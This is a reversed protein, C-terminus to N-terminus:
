GFTNRRGDKVMKERRKDEPGRNVKGVIGVQVLVEKLWAVNGTALVRSLGNGSEVIGWNEVMWRVVNKRVSEVGWEFSFVMQGEWNEEDVRVRALREVACTMLGEMGYMDAARYVDHLLSADWGDEGERLRGSYLYHLVSRFTEYRMGGGIQVTARTDEAWATSLLNSFYNSRSALIVRHARLPRPDADFAFIIDSFRPDDVAPTLDLTLPVPTPTPTPTPPVTTPLNTASILTTMAPHAPIESIPTPSRSPSSIDYSALPDQEPQADSLPSNILIHVRILLDYPEIRGDSHPNKPLRSQHFFRRRGWDLIQRDWAIEGGSWREILITHIQGDNPLPRFRVANNRMSGVTLSTKRNPLCTSDAPIDEGYNDLPTATEFSSPVVAYAELVLNINDRKWPRSQEDDTPIAKLYCAVHDGAHTNGSPYLSLVWSFPRRRDVRGHNFGSGQDGKENEPPPPCWFTNSLLDKGTPYIKRVLPFNKISWTYSFTDLVSNTYFPGSNHEM